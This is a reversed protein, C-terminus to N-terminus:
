PDMTAAEPWWRRAGSDAAIVGAANYGCLGTINGGPHTSGGCLYLGDVPTRYCGAGAFPRNYGIQDNAFSGVLLDGQFMNPLSRETDAPSLCFRDLITAGSLNPAYQRWFKLLEEGHSDRQQAWKTADGRLQYPLKEWLFAAHKGGTSQSPDFQTPCSGWAVPPPIEGREHAAVIEHFQEFRELGLILMFADRLEPDSNAASYQPPETLALHLGFLPALLNYQFGRAQRRLSHAIESEPLLQLFTQQPNLGSAVFGDAAIREGSGLEVGVARGGRMLIRKIEIGCRVTGGEAEIVEVLGRALEASGGVCM